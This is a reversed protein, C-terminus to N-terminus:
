TATTAAGQPDQQNMTGARLEETTQLGGDLLFLTDLRAGTANKSEEYHSLGLEYGVTLGCRTCRLQYRKEFGDELKLIVANQDVTANAVSGESTGINCIRSGDLTRSPLQELPKPLAVILENCICHYTVYEM